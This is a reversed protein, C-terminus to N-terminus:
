RANGISPIGAADQPGAIIKWFELVRCSRSAADFEVLAYRADSECGMIGDVVVVESRIRAYEQLWGGYGAVFDDLLYLRDCKDRRREVRDTSRWWGRSVGFLARL